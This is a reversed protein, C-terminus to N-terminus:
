SDPPDERWAASIGILGVLAFTLPALVPPGWVLLDVSVEQGPPATPLIARRVHWYAGLLGVLISLGFVGNAFVTALNRRRLALLGAAGLLLGAIPGFIIPIWERPIITGSQSHALYIDVGLFFENVSAMLLMVQDRSLPIRLDRIM